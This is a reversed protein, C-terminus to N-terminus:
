DNKKSMESYVFQVVLDYLNQKDGGGHLHKLIQSAFKILTGNRDASTRGRLIDIFQVLTAGDTLAVLAKDVAEEIHDPIVMEVLPNDLAAKIQGTVDLAEYAYGQIKGDFLMKVQVKINQWLKKISM